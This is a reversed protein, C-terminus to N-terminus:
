LPLLPIRKEIKRIPEEFDNEKGCIGECSDDTFYGNVHNKMLTLMNAEIAGPM